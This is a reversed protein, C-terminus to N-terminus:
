MIYPAPLALRTGRKRCKAAWPSKPGSACAARSYYAEDRGGTGLELVGGRLLDLTKLAGLAASDILDEIDPELVPESFLFLRILAALLKPAGPSLNLINPKVGSLDSMEEIKLTRLITAEDFGANRLFFEVRDFDEPTGLVLPFQQAGEVNM